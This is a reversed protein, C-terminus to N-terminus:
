EDLHKTIRQMVSYLSGVMGRSVLGKFTNGHSGDRNMAVVAVGVVKYTSKGGPGYRAVLM